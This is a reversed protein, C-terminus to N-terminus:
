RQAAAAAMAGRVAQLLQEPRYPKALLHSEEVPMGDFTYGTSLIVPM